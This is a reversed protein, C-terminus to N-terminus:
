PEMIKVGYFKRMFTYTALDLLIYYFLQALGKQKEYYFLDRILETFRRM